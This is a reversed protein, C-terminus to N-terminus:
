STGQSNRVSTWPKSSFRKTGVVTYVVCGSVGREVVRMYRIGLTIQITYRRHSFCRHCPEDIYIHM